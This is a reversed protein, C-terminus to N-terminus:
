LSRMVQDRTAPGWNVSLEHNEASGLGLPISFSVSAGHTDNPQAWLRGHHNEIISRSVSLGIGMGAEKTTFFADFIRHLDQSAFGVGEDKVTLRVSEDTDRETKVILRKPRNDIGGMADSANRVLNLIVQQLQVRDGMVAPLCDDFDTELNIRDRKLENQLLAIVEQTAENLHVREM